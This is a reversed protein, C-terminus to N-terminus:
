SASGISGCVRSCGGAASPATESGIVLTGPPAAALADLVAPRGGVSRRSPPAHASVGLGALLAPANGGELLPLDRSVLVVRRGVADVGRSPPSGPRWRWRSPTRTTARGHRGARGGRPLYTGISHIM